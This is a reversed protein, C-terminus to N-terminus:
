IKENLSKIVLFQFEQVIDKVAFFFVFKEILKLLLSPNLSTSITVWNNEQKMKDVLVQACQGLLLSYEKAKSTKLRKTLEQHTRSANSPLTKEDDTLKM